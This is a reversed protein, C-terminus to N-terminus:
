DKDVKIRMEIMHKSFGIKEYARIAASNPYYVELRLENINKSLAWKQLEAVIKKNIGRGRFEEVVFMFGLYAHHEHQLYAESKEIRAYGSAILKGDFEAVILQSDPSNMLGPLDYYHISGPRLTPDFPREAAIVGQEFIYLQELDSERAERIIIHNNEAEM